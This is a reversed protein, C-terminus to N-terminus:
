HHHRDLIFHLHRQLGDNVFSPGDSAFLMRWLEAIFLAISWTSHLSLRQSVNISVISSGSCLFWDILIYLCESIFSIVFGFTYVPWESEFSEKVAMDSYCRARGLAPACRKLCLLDKNSPSHFHKLCQTSKSMFSHFIEQGVASRTLECWHYTIIYHYLQLMFPYSNSHSRNYDTLMM